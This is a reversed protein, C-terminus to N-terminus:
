GDDVGDVLMVALDVLVQGPDHGRLAQALGVARM